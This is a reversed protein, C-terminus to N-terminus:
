LFSGMDYIGQGGCGILIMTIKDSPAINGDRGLSSAKIITPFISIGASALATKRLFGRRDQKM